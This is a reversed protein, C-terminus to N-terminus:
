QRMWYDAQEDVADAYDNLMQLFSKPKKPDPKEENSLSESESKETRHTDKSM